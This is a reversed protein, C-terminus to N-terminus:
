RIIEDARVIISEPVNIGLAKATKLNVVLNFKTPQEIPLDAPKAGKLIRDVYAASRKFMDLWDVSYSLVAGAEVLERGDAIVPLRRAVSGILAHRHQYTFASAWIVAAQPREQDIITPVARIDDVTRVPMMCISVGIDHALARFEADVYNVLNLERNDDFLLCLRKLGPLLEKTLELLKPDTDYRQYSLGTLNGGPRALSAVLGTRVPDGMTPSVIPITTTANKLTPADGTLVDVKLAVLERIIERLKSPDGNSYRTILTV